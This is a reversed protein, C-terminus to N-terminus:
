RQVLGIIARAETTLNTAQADTLGQFGHLLDVVQIFTNMQHIHRETEDKRERTPHGNSPVLDVVMCDM